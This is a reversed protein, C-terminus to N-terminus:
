ILQAELQERVVLARRRDGRNRQEDAVRHGLVVDVPRLAHLTARLARLRHPDAGDDVPRGRDGCGIQLHRTGVHYRHTVRALELRPAGDRPGTRRTRRTRAAGRTQLPGRAGSARRTRRTGRTRRTRHTCVAGRTRLTGRAGSARRSRRTRRTRRTRVAGRTQLTGRAGSARRTRRTRLSWRA